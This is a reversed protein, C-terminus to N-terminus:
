KKLELNQKFQKKYNKIQFNGVIEEGALDEIAYTWAVTNKVKKIM